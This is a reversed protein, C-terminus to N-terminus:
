LHEIINWMDYIGDKGIDSKPELIISSTPNNSNEYNVDKTHRERELLAHIFTQLDYDSDNFLHDTQKTFQFLSMSGFAKLEEEQFRNKFNEVSSVKSMRSSSSISDKEYNSKASVVTPTLSQITLDNKKMQDEEKIEEENPQNDGGDLNAKVVLDLQNGGSSEPQNLREPKGNRQHSKAVQITLLDYNISYRNDIEIIYGKEKLGKWRELFNSKDIHLDKAIRSYALIYNPRSSYSQLEILILREIPTLGSAHLIINPVKTFNETFNKLSTKKGRLYKSM